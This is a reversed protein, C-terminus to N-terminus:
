DLDQCTRQCMGTIIFIQDGPDGDLEIDTPYCDMGLDIDGATCLDPDIWNGGADNCQQPSHNAPFGLWLGSIDTGQGGTMYGCQQYYYEGDQTTTISGANVRLRGTNDTSLPTYDLNTNSLLAGADNRVALVLDGTDGDAHPTDEDHQVGGGTGGSLFATSDLGDIADANVGTVKNPAPPNAGNIAEVFDTKSQLTSSIISDWDIEGFLHSVGPVAYTMGMLAVLVVGVIM